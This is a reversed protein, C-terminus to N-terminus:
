AFKSLFGSPDLGQRRGNGAGFDRHRGADVLKPGGTLSRGVTKMLNRIPGTELRLQGPKEDFTEAFWALDDIVREHAPARSHDFRGQELADRVGAVDIRQTQEEGSRSQVRRRQRLDGLAEFRD